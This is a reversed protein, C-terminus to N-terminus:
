PLSQRLEKLLNQHEAVVSAYEPDESINVNEKPDNLNDYLMRAYTFGNQNVWETYLYQDTKVSEGNIYRSYVADKHIVDPDEMSPLFSKGDLHEPIDLGALEVISPYIDIYEVLTESIHGNSIKPSKVIVPTSLVRNFNCHKAWLGHEGLHWGHDGFVIVITNKALGTEELTQMLKGIQYDIYTVCAYYGHVLNIETEKSVPDNQPIGHYMSRLEGWNHMAADPANIPKNPNDALVLDEENYMDWYKQPANFPLHPKTFGVGLFFSEGTEAFKELQQIAREALLGDPYGNDPVDAAEWAPGIVRHPEDETRNSEIILRAEETLYSQWGIGLEAQHDWPTTSWAQLDDDQHHYVKGMSMTTYGNQKFWMPLSPDQPFDTDKRSYYNVFRETTPRVGSLLSARSAGCVPVNCYARNFAVGETALQDLNPTIMQTQGFVNAQYRLDDVPIFLVNLPKTDEKEQEAGGCSFSIAALTAIAINKKQIM